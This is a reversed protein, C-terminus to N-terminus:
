IDNHVIINLPYLVFKHTGQPCGGAHHGLTISDSISAARHAMNPARLVKVKVLRPESQGRRFGARTMSIIVAYM